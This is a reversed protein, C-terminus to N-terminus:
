RQRSEGISKLKEKIFGVSMRLERLRFPKKLFSSSHINFIYAQIADEIETAIDRVENIWNQTRRDHEQKHDADELFCQIRTLETRLNEVDYRLSSLSGSERNLLDTISEVAQSIAAEALRLAVFELAM